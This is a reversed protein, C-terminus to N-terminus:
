DSDDSDSHVLAAVVVFDDLQSEDLLAPVAVVVLQVVLAVFADVAFNM